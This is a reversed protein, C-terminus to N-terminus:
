VEKDGEARGRTGLVGRGREGRGRKKRGSKEGEGKDRGERVIRRL